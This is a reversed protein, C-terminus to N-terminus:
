GKSKQKHQPFLQQAPTNERDEECEEACELSSDCSACDGPLARRDRTLFDNANKGSLLISGTFYYNYYDKILFRETM